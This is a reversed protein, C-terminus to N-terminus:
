SRERWCGDEDGGRGLRRLLRGLSVERNVAVGMGAGMGIGGTTGSAIGVGSGTGLTGPGARSKGVVGSRGLGTGDGSVPTGPRPGMPSGTTM